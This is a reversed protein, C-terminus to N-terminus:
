SPTTSLTSAPFAPLHQLLNPPNSVKSGYTSPSGRHPPLLCDLIASNSSEGLVTHFTERVVPSPHALGTVINTAADQALRRGPDEMGAGGMDVPTLLIDTVQHNELNTPGPIQLAQLGAHGVSNRVYTVTPQDPPEACIMNEMRQYMITLSTTCTLRFSPDVRTIQSRFADAIGQIKARQKVWAYCGRPAAWDFWAGLYRTNTLEADHGQDEGCAPPVLTTAQDCLLVSDSSLATLWLALSQAKPSCQLLSKVYNTFV